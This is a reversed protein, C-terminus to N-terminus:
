GGSAACPTLEWVWRGQECRASMADNLLCNGYQCSKGEDRCLDGENPLVPPCTGGPPKACVWKEEPCFSPCPPCGCFTDTYTCLQNLSTCVTGSAPADTPCTSDRPCSVAGSSTWLGDACVFRTRCSPRPDTGYSCHLGEADCDSGFAPQPQPCVTGGGGTGGGIGGVAGTGGSGGRAGSGGTSEGTSFTDGGCAALIAAALWPCAAFLLSRVCKAM